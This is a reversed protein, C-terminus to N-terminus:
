KRPRTKYGGAFSASFGAGLRTAEQKMYQEFVSAFAVKPANELKEVAGEYKIVGRDQPSVVRMEGTVRSGDQFSLACHITLM